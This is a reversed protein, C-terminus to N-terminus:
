AGNDDSRKLKSLQTDELSEQKKAEEEGQRVALEDM